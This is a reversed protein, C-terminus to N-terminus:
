LILPKQGLAAIFDVSLRIAALRFMHRFNLAIHLSWEIKEYEKSGAQHQM